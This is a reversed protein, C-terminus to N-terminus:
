PLRPQRRFLSMVLVLIRPRPKPKHPSPAGWGGKALAPEPEADTWENRRRDYHQARLHRSHEETVSWALNAHRGPYPDFYTILGGASPDNMDDELEADRYRRPEYYENEAPHYGNGDWVGM